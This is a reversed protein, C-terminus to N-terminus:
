TIPLSLYILARFGTHAKLSQRPRPRLASCLLPGTRAWRVAAQTRPPPLQAPTGPSTFGGFTRGPSSCVLHGTLLQTLLWAAPLIGMHEAPHGHAEYAAGTVAPGRCSTGHGWAWPERGHLWFFQSQQGWLVPHRQKGVTVDGVEWDTERPYM